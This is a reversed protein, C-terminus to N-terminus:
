IGFLAGSGCRSGSLADWFVRVWHLSPGPILYHLCDTYTHSDARMASANYVDIIRFGAQRFISELAANREAYELWDYRRSENAAHLM